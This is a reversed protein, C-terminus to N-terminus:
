LTYAELSIGEVRKWHELNISGYKILQMILESALKGSYGDYATGVSECYVKAKDRIFPKSDMLSILKIRVDEARSMYEVLGNRIFGYWDINSENFDYYVPYINLLVAELIINSNGAIIADIRKFFEFSNEQSPDSVEIGVRNAFKIWEGKRKDGPHPRIIYRLGLPDDFLKNCLEVVRAIPDKPNLCIGVSTVKKNMNVNNIYKDFKSIGILFVKVDSSGALDYKRLADFGELFAYNFELAPFNETVSAHQVYITPINKEKAVKAVVRTAMGHDNSIVIVLPKYGDLWFWTTLYYGYTLWYQDFIYKYTERRHELSKLYKFLVVPFFLLSLFFAYIFPFRIQVDIHTYPSGGIFYSEEVKDAIPALSNKQNLTTVLFFVANKGLRKRDLKFIDSTSRVLHYLFSLIRKTVGRKLSGENPPLAVWQKGLKESGYVYNLDYIDLKLTDVLLQFLSKRTDM